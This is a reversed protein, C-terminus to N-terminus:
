RAWDPVSSSVLDVNVAQDILGRLADELLAALSDESLEPINPLAAGLNALKRRLHEARAEKTPFHVIENLSTDEYSTLVSHMAAPVGAVPVEPVPQDELYIDIGFEAYLASVLGLAVDPDAGGFRLLIDNVDDADVKTCTDALVAVCADRREARTAHLSNSILQADNTVVLSFCVTDPKLHSLTTATM